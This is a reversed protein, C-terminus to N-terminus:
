SKMRGGVRSDDKVQENEHGIIVKVLGGSGSDGPIPASSM